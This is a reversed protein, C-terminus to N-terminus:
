RPWSMRELAAATRATRATRDLGDLRAMDEPAFSVDFMRANEEIRDHQTSKRVVPVRRRICWRLLVQAPARDLRDAIAGIPRGESVRRHRAAEATVVEDAAVVPAQCHPRRASASVAGSTDAPSDAHLCIGM